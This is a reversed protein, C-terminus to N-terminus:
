KRGCARLDFAIGLMFNRADSFATIIGSFYNQLQTFTKKAEDFGGFIIEWTQAWGSQTTEKLVDWLQSMTKVETTAEQASKALSKFNAIQDANFGMAKLEAESYADSYVNMAKTFLEGSLWGSELTDEFTGKEAIMGAVDIGEIKAFEMLTEKLQETGMNANRLSNWDIKRITGGLAQSMQYTARAMDEATAGSAGALNALGQVAKTAEDVGLGQAVFKGVNSTM